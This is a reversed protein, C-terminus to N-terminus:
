LGWRTELLKLITLTGKYEEKEESVNDRKNLNTKSGEMM